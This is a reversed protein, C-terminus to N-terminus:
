ESTTVHKAQESSPQSHSMTAHPGQQRSSKLQKRGRALEGASHTTIAAGCEFSVSILPEAEPSNNLHASAASPLMASVHVGAATKLPCWRERVLTASLEFNSTVALEDATLVAM